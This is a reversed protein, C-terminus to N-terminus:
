AKSGETNLRSNSELFMKMLSKVQSSKLALPKEVLVDVKQLAKKAIEYHTEAPTCIVIGDVAEILEELTKYFKYINNNNLNLKTDFVGELVGLESFVRAQNKGWYGYGVVGVKPKRM